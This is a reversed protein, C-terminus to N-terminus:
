SNEIYKVLVKINTASYLLCIMFFYVFQAFIHKTSNVRTCYLIIECLREYKTLDKIYIRVTCQQLYIKDFKRFSANFKIVKCHQLCFFHLFKNIKICFDNHQIFKIEAHMLMFTTSYGYLGTRWRRIMELM